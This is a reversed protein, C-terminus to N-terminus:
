EMKKAFWDPIQTIIVNMLNDYMFVAVQTDQQFKIQHWWYPPVFLCCGTSVNVDMWPVSDKVLNQSSEIVKYDNKSVVDNDQYYKFPVLSINLEGQMVYLYYSHRRHYRVPLTAGKSGIWFDYETDMTGFPALFADCYHLYRQLPTEKVLVSNNESWFSLTSEDEEGNNHFLPLAEELSIEAYKESSEYLQIKEKGYKEVFQVLDFCCLHNSDPLIIGNKLIFYVPQKARCTEQLYQNNIYDMELIELDKGVKIEELFNLYIIGIVCISILFFWLNM